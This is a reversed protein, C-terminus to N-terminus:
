RWDSSPETLTWSWNSFTPVTSKQAVSVSEGLNLLPSIKPQEDMHTPDVQSIMIREHEPSLECAGYGKLSVSYVIYRPIGWHPFNEEVQRDLDRASNRQFAVNLVASVNTAYCFLKEMVLKQACSSISWRSCVGYETSWPKNDNIRIMITMQCPSRTLLAEMRLPFNRSGNLRFIRQAFILELCTCIVICCELSM